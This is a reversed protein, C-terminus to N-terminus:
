INLPAWVPDRLELAQGPDLSTWAPLMRAPASLVGQDGETLAAVELDDRGLRAHLQRRAVFRHM